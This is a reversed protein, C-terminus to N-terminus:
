AVWEGGTFRMAMWGSPIYHKVGREDTIRHGGSKSVRLKVPKHVTYSSKSFFYIRHDEDSIDVWENNALKDAQELTKM